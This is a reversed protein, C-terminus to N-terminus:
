GNAILKVMELANETDGHVCLTDVVLDLAKGNVSVINGTSKLINLRELVQQPEHIVANKESRAVLLGSDQYNRDAFAEFRLTINFSNAINQFSSTDPLAQIVLPLASDFESIAQCVVSFTELSRMMDNYLAGHPKVFSVSTNQSLCIGNLAGLQYQICAQLAQPEMQISRRGFGQLDPYSPHAGIEVNHKIALAVTQQMILPDGAHMGCAINAQDIYPMIAADNGMQWAGFSEGLDCNLKM